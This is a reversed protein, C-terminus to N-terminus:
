SGAAVHWTPPNTTDYAPKVEIAAMVAGELPETRDFKFVEAIMRPGQSGAIDFPGDLFMVDVTEDDDYADHFIAFDPNDTDWVMETSISIDRLTTKRLKWRSSRNSVDAEGKSDSITVDRIAEILHWVPSGYPGSNYYAYCDLGTKANAM